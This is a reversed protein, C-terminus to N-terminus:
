SLRRKTHKRPMGPDQQYIWAIPILTISVESYSAGQASATAHGVEQERSAPFCEQWGAKDAM